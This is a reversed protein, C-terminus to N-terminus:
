QGKNLFCVIAHSDANSFNISYMISIDTNNLDCCKSRHLVHIIHWILRHLLFHPLRENYFIEKAPSGFVSKRKLIQLFSGM